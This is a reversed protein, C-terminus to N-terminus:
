CSCWQEKDAEKQHMRVNTPETGPPLTDDTINSMRQCILDALEEFAKNVNTGNKASTEIYMYGLQEALQSAREPSVTRSDVLDSKNGVVVVSVNEGSLEKIQTAWERVNIFSEENSVDFMLIFGM